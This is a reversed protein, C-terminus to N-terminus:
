GRRSRSCFDALLSMYPSRSSGIPINVLNACCSSVASSGSDINSLRTSVTATARFNGYTAIQSGPSASPAQVATALTPWRGFRTSNTGMRWSCSSIPRRSTAGREGLSFSASASRSSSALIAWNAAVVMRVRSNFSCNFCDRLC